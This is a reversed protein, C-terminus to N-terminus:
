SCDSGFIFIYIMLSAVASRVHSWLFSGKWGWHMKYKKSGTCAHDARRGKAKITQSIILTSIEPLYFIVIVLKDLSHLMINENSEQLKIGWGFRYNQCVSLFPQTYNITTTTADGVVSVAPGGTITWLPLRQKIIRLFLGEM